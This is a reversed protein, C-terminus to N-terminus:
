DIGPLGKTRFYGFIFAGVFMGVVGFLVPWNGMGVATFSTGPCLGSVGWGVGFLAAGIVNWKSVALKPRSTFTNGLIPKELIKPAFYYTLSVLLLGGGMVFLLGLDELRLFSLIVEPVAAGSYALGFGFFLGGLITSLYISTNM